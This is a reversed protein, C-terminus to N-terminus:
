SLGCFRLPLHTIVSLFRDYFVSDLYTNKVDAESSFASMLITSFQRVYATVPTPLEVRM